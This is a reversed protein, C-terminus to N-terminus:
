IWGFQEGGGNLLHKLVLAGEEQAADIVISSSAILWVM